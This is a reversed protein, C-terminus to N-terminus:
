LCINFFFPIVKSATSTCNTAIEWLRCINYFTWFIVIAWYVMWGVSTYIQESLVATSFLYINGLTFMFSSVFISLVPVSYANEVLKCLSYLRSHIRVLLPIRDHNASSLQSNILDFRQSSYSLLASQQLITTEYVFFNHYFLLTIGNCLFCPLYSFYVIPWVISATYVLVNQALKSFLRLNDFVPADKGIMSGIQCLRSFIEKYVFRNWLSTLSILILSIRMMMFEIQVFLTRIYNNAVKSLQGLYISILVSVSCVAFSYVVWGLSIACNHTMPFTGLIRALLCIQGFANEPYIFTTLKHLRSHYM